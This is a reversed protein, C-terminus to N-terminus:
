PEDVDPNCAWCHVITLLPGKELALAELSNPDIDAAREIFTAASATSGVFFLISFLTFVAPNM